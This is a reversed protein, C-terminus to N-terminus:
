GGVAALAARAPREAGRLWLEAEELRAAYARASASRELETRAGGLRDCRRADPAYRALGLECLVRVLRGAGRGSRPYAGDGRLAAALSEGELSGARDLTRWLDALPTRLGLESRWHGLAFEREAPGWALHALGAGPLAALLALGEEVPPPDLVLLHEFDAALAPRGALAAWSVVQLGAAAMGAVTAELAAQRRAVDAVVLLVPEGSTLLEGAVGAFGEGRRNRLTRTRVEPAPDWWLSPDASLEREFDAWFDQLALDHVTGAPTPCVSKLVVRAEVTGNWRNRELGVAVDHPAAGTEALAKQSTRFAVGRARAGGSSISFRAHAREEGMATVHEVRAAPVLLTPAPNGAGFPGLRELEEALDLTLAGGPAVADVEQVRALDEPALREGAHRALIGRLADVQGEEIELGAAMRHGGFRLLHSAAAALGEHLDYADISRGSGRGRGGELAITTAPSPHCGPTTPM